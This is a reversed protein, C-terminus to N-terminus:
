GIAEDIVNRLGPARLAVIGKAIHRSLRFNGTMPLQDHQDFTQAFQALEGTVGGRFGDIAQNPDCIVKVSVGADRFCTIIELDVPTATRPRTM